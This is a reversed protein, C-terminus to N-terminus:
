MKKYYKNYEERIHVTLEEDKPIMISLNRGLCKEPLPFDTRVGSIHYMIAGEKYNELMPLRLICEKYNSFIKNKYTIEPNVIVPVYLVNTNDGTEIVNLEKQSEEYECVHVRITYPVGRKLESEQLLYTRKRQLFEKETCCFVKFENPDAYVPHKSSHFIIQEDDGMSEAVKKMASSLEFEYRSDYVFILFHTGRKFRWGIQVADGDKKLNFERMQYDPTYEKIKM